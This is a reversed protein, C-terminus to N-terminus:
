LDPVKAPRGWTGLCLGLCLPAWSTRNWLEARGGEGRGDRYGCPSVLPSGVRQSGVPKPSQPSCSMPLFFPPSDSDKNEQSGGEPDRSRAADQVLPGQEEGRPGKELVPSEAEADPLWGGREATPQPLHCIPLTIADGGQGEGGVGRNCEGGIIRDSTGNTGQSTSQHM